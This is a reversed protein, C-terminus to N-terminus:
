VAGRADFGPRKSSASPPVSKRSSIPWRASGSWAFSSRASCSRCIRRTPPVRAIAISTRMM